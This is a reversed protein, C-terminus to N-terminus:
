GQRPCYGWDFKRATSMLKRRVGIGFGAKALARIITSGPKMGSWRQFGCDVDCWWAKDSQSYTAAFWPMRSMASLLKRTSPDQTTEFSLIDVRVGDTNVVTQRLEREALAFVRLLGDDALEARHTESTFELM